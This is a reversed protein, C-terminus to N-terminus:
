FFPLYTDVFVCPQCFAHSIHDLLPCSFLLVRQENGGGGGGGLRGVLIRVFSGDDTVGERRLELAFLVGTAGTSGEGRDEM